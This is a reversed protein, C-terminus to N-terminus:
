TFVAISYGKNRNHTLGKMNSNNKSGWRYQKFNRSPYCQFIETITKKFWLPQLNCPLVKFFVLFEFELEPHNWFMVVTHHFFDSFGTSTPVKIGSKVTAVACPGLHLFEEMLSAVCIEFCALYIPVLYRIMWFATEEYPIFSSNISSIMCWRPHISGQLYHSLSGVEVPAPNRGDVTHKGILHISERM